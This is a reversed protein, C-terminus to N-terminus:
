FFKGKYIDKRIFTAKEKMLGITKLLTEDSLNSTKTEELNKLIRFFRKM